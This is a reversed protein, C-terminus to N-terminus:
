STIGRKDSVTLPKTITLLYHFSSLSLTFNGLDRVLVDDAFPNEWYLHKLPYFKQCINGEACSYTRLSTLIKKTECKDYLLLKINGICDYTLINIGLCDNLCMILAEAEPYSFIHIAFSVDSQHSSAFSHFYKYNYKLEYILSIIAVLPVLQFLSWLTATSYFM